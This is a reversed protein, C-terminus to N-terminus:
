NTYGIVCKQKNKNMNELKMSNLLLFLFYWSCEMLSNDVNNYEGESVRSFFFTSVAYQTKMYQM